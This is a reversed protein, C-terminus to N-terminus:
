GGARLYAKKRIEILLKEAYKYDPEEPLNSAKFLEEIKLIKEEAMKILDTYEFQGAKIKLLEERNPRKVRITNLKAIDEAEDLLRFTHMLNKSDYNKGHKITTRYREDNRNNVWKWYEKYEKCYKSYGNKNYYIHNIPKEEKGISSMILETSKDDTILGRYNKNHGKTKDYFIGYFNEMHQLNVLGCCEPQFSNEKLWKKLPMSGQRHIVHCFDLITKRKKPMPNSIKKNLGRAKKIQMVAYGAFSDKCKKSLFKTPILNKFEKSNLLLHEKSVFFMELVTPNSKCLLSLFKGIEFYSIDNTENDIQTDYQFSLFSDLPSVFVGKIDTDSTATDLGYAKSGVICEYIIAKNSKLDKIDM